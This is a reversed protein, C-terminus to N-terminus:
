KVKVVEIRLNNSRNVMWFINKSATELMVPTGQKFQNAQNISLPTKSQWEEGSETTFFIKKGIQEPTKTVFTFIKVKEKKAIPQNSNSTTKNKAFFSDYCALRESSQKIDICNYPSSQALL